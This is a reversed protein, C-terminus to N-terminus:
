LKSKSFPTKTITIPSYFNILNVIQHHLSNSVSTRGLDGFLLLSDYIYGCGYTSYSLFGEITKITRLAWPNSTHEYIYIYTQAVQVVM